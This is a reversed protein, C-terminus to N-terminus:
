SKHISQVRATTKKEQITM